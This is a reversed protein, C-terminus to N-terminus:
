TSLLQYDFIFTEPYVKRFYFTVQACTDLHLDNHVNKNKHLREKPNETRQEFLKLVQLLRPFYATTM